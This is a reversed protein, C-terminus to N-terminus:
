ELNRIFERRWYIVGFEINWHSVDQEPEFLQGDSRYHIRIMSDNEAIIKKRDLAILCQNRIEEALVTDKITFIDVNLTAEVKAFHFGENYSYTLNIYPMPTNEPAWEDYIAPLLPNVTSKGLLDILPQSEILHKYIETQISPL